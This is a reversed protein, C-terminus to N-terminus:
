LLSGGSEEVAVPSWNSSAAKCSLLAMLVANNGLHAMVVAFYSRTLVLQGVPHLVRWTELLEQHHVM